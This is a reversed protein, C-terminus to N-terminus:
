LKILSFENQSIAQKRYDVMTDDFWGRISTEADEDYEFIKIMKAIGDRAVVAKLDKEKFSGLGKYYKMVGKKELEPTLEEINYEWDVLTDNKKVGILPTELMGIKGLKLHELIHTYSFTLGLGRIHIGDLDQDTAWIIYSYGESKIIEYLDRLEVNKMFDKHDAKLTNLPKGKLEYYGFEKRGLVPMLGGTASAGETILLYKKIGTPALYKESTIRKKSPKDLSAMEKKRQLEEKLRYIDTIPDVIDSNKIIKTAFKDWDPIEIQSAFDTSNNSCISKIQDEFRPNVMNQFVVIAFLKNRIDGIKINPYKKIIKDSVANTISRMVWELPKGGNFVNLGNIYHVFEFTDDKAPMIAININKEEIIESVESGFLKVYEKFNRAKLQKGNYTFKILPYTLSLNILDSMLIDETDKDFGSVGFREYDPTFTVDTGQKKGKGLETHKDDLNNVSVLKFTKSGDCTIGEFRKSFICTLAVGEGNQGLTTNDDDDDFNSGASLLTWAGEPMLIGDDNMGEMTVIPIGRGNDKVSLTNGDCTIDIKNAFQYSTRIAEDISNDIVERIIKILGPTYSVKRKIFVDGNFVYTETEYPKTNGIFRNPRLLVKDRDSIKKIINKKM